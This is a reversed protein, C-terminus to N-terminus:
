SFYVHANGRVKERGRGQHLGRTRRVQVIENSWVSTDLKLSQVKSVMTGLGRHQGAPSFPCFVATIVRRASSLPVTNTVPCEPAAESSLVVLCLFSTHIQFCKVEGPVPPIFVVCTLIFRNHSM